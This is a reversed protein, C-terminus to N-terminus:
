PPVNRVCRTEANTLGTTSLQPIPPIEYIAGVGPAARRVVRVVGADALLKMRRYFTARSCKARQMLFEEGPMGRRTVDNADLAIDMLTWWEPGPKEPRADAVEGALKWGM